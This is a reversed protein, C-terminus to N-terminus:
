EALSHPRHATKFREPTQYYQENISNNQDCSQSATSAATAHILHRGLAKREIDRTRQLELFDDVFCCLYCPTDKRLSM